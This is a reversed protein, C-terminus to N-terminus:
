WWSGLVTFVAGPIHWVPETATQYCAALDDEYLQDTETNKAHHQQENKNCTTAM